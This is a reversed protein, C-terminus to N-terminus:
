SFHKLMIVERPTLSRHKGRPLNKKTLGAFYIRDLRQVKYGLSEFIRRVVRNWGLIITLVVENDKDLRGRELDKIKAVGEDLQIGKKVADFHEQTIPKDLVVHYEKRIQHSPHSLKKALDGDNTILLLGTTQRDLRGVPFLRESGKYDLIDLVTKRDKEDNTTTIVDKPKNLLFYIFTVEPQLIRGEYSVQDSKEVLRYPVKCLEGNVTIKGQKILEISKRRSAIGCKAVYKNLRVPYTLTQRVSTLHKKHFPNSKDVKRKKM